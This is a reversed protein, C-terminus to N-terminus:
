QYEYSFIYGNEDLIYIYDGIYTCRQAYMEKENIKFKDTVEIKNNKIEFVVAGTEFGSWEDNYKYYPIAYYGKDPNEILAKHNYQADSFGNKIVRSDLVKPSSSDSIDFLALKIGDVSSDHDTSSGIGLLIDDDAPVLLSSFGTIEVDGELVPKLPNSLDIVFLPDTNEYTVVYAKNKIFRVAQISEKEAFGTVSGAVNLNRDLIYLNNTQVNKKNFSTSAVRLYGDKEDFSFQNNVFGDIYGSASFEINGNNLSIKVIQTKQENNKEQEIDSQMMDGKYSAAFMHNDNCYIQSTGSLLAKTKTKINTINRIDISSIVIYGADSPQDIQAIDSIQVKQRKGNMETYPVYKESDDTCVYYDSVVYIIDGVLRSTNYFGSQTFQHVLRPSSRNSINYIYISFSSQSDDDGSKLFNNVNNIVNVILFDDKVYMDCVTGKSDFDDIVCVKQTKKGDPRIIEIKQSYGDKADCFIYYIYQGDNKIIDAEDVGDVQKYTKGYSHSPFASDEVSSKYYFSDTLGKNIVSNNKKLDDIVSNIEDYSGFTKIHEVYATDQQENKNFFEQNAVPYAATLSVAAIAFCAAISVVAKIAKNAQFRVKASSDGANELLPKISIDELEIPLEINEEDFKRKIFTLYNMDQKKM